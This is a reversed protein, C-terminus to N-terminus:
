HNGEFLQSDSPIFTTLPHVVIFSGESWNRFFGKVWLMVMWYRHHIETFHKESWSNWYIAMIPLQFKQKQKLRDLNSIEVIWIIWSSVIQHFRLWVMHFMRGLIFRPFPSVQWPRPRWYTRVRLIRSSTHHVVWKKPLKNHHIKEDTSGNGYHSHHPNIHIM